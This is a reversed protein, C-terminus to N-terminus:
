STISLKTGYNFTDTALNSMASCVSKDKDNILLYDNSHHKIMKQVDQVGIIKKGLM